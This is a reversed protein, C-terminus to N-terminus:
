HKVGYRHDNPNLANYFAIATAAIGSSILTQAGDTDIAFVDAGNAIFQALIAAVFVRLLTGALARTEQTTM